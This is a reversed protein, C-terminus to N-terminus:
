PLAGAIRRASEHSSDVARVDPGTMGYYCFTFYVMRASEVDYNFESLERDNWSMRLLKEAGGADRMLKTLHGGTALCAMKARVREAKAREADGLVLLVEHITDLDAVMAKACAGYEKRPVGSEDYKLGYCPSKPALGCGALWIAPAAVLATM